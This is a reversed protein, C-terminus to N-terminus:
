APSSATASMSFYGRRQPRSQLATGAKNGPTLKM